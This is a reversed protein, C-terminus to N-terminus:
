KSSLSPFEFIVPTCTGRVIVQLYGDFVSGTQIHHQEIFAPTLYPSQDIELVFERGELRLFSEKIEQDPIFRFKVEYKEAAQNQPDGMKRLSVIEARGEYRRYECPGGAKRDEKEGDSAQLSSKEALIFFLPILFFLLSSRMRRYGGGDAPGM